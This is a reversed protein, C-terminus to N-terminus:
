YLTQYMSPSQPEIGTLGRYGRHVSWSQLEGLMKDLSYRPDKGRPYLAATAHRQVSVGM